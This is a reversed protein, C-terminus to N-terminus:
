GQSQISAFHQRCADTTCSKAHKQLVQEINADKHKKVLKAVREARARNRGLYGDPEQAAMVYYKDLLPAVTATKKDDGIDLILAIDSVLWQLKSSRGQVSERAKGSWVLAEKKRGAAKELSALSSQYYWPTDTREVEALLVKRAEDFEGVEGLLYAAGSIVAHRDFNSKAESIAQRAAAAVKQRLEKPLAEPKVDPKVLKYAVLEPYHAWLRSDASLTKDQQLTQAATFWNESFKTFEPKTKLDDGFLLKSTESLNYALFSRSARITAPSASIKQWFDPWSNRFAQLGSESPKEILAIRTAVRSVLSAQAAPDLTQPVRKALEVLQTAEDTLTLGELQDWSTYALIRWEDATLDTKKEVLAQVSTKGAVASSVAAEFEQVDLSGSFRTLEEGQASLLLVTPYGTLKYREALAQANASDGDLYFPTVLKAIERFREKSFVQEKLENCPPCWVAGWYLLVPKGSRLVTEIEGTQWVAPDLGHLKDTEAQTLPASLISLFLTSLKFFLTRMSRGEGAM